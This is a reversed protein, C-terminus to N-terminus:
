TVACSTEETNVTWNFNPKASVLAFSCADTKQPLHNKSPSDPPAPVAPRRGVAAKMHQVRTMPLMALRDFDLVMSQGPDDM